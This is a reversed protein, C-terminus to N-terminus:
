STEISGSSSQQLKRMGRLGAVQVRGCGTSSMSRSSSTRPSTAAVTSRISRSLIWGLRHALLCWFDLFRVVSVELRQGAELAEGVLDAPYFAYPQDFPEKTLRTGTVVVNDAVAEDGDTADDAHVPVVAGLAVMVACKLKWADIM